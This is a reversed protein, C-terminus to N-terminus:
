SHTSSRTFGAFAALRSVAHAIGAPDATVIPVIITLSWWTATFVAATLAPALKSTFFTRLPAM